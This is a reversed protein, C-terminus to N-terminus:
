FQFVITSDTIDHVSEKTTGGYTMSFTYTGSLLEKNIEGGSTHGFTRWSGAYYTVNGTDIGNGQSDKLQVKVNVTQFVVVADTETNQVKEKYTGEYTMSFTYSGSLLEKSIEGGSTHGFTRWSGAYYTVNGSDIGNGQSNKLQVKVNVTQFVVVPDTVTNQVKEKYTGEYTMGFTYSGPLLEKSIEGSSTDGITRWSGAYYTVNGSDIPNGQSNKLQVKVNVTQFVVVADTGTNQVKEKYTGEYSMAFTYSKNPLSKSVMGSADTIGFDKWGGDYYKVTGGSLANGNSDKLQVKVATAALTFSLTQPPEVNGAQDTSKYMLSIQGQKDFTVASSYLHWTTGNDLSYETRAVGSLNDTSQLTLTVPNVFTGNPGDPELPFVSATTVPATKDIENVTPTTVPPAWVELEVHNSYVNTSNGNLWLRVYRANTTAFPIDKGGSTEVYEADTGIGQGASNDTDNNFVTTKTAFTPDNSVQVVVDRYKWGSGFYHWLKIDNIDYSEGLDLQIWNVSSSYMDVFNANTKDGDTLRVKNQANSSSTIATKNLAVNTPLAPPVVPAGPKSTISVKGLQTVYANTADHMFVIKLYKTGVPLSENYSFKNWTGVAKLVGTRIPTVPTYTINDPSSFFQYDTFPGNNLYWTDAAFKDIDMDMFSKYIVYENLNKTRTLRSADGEMKAANSSDFRFNATHDFMNTFDYVDDTVTVTGAGAPPAALPDYQISLKHSIGDKAGTNVEFKITPSLQLITITPDKTVVSVGAKEIEYTLKNQKHTPDSIAFDLVGAQEKLMMSSPNYSIVGGVMGANWFNAGTIGLVKEKVAHVDTNNMLIEIDPNNGYSTTEQSTKNPLLVYSYDKNVPNSGHDYWLTLYKKTITGLGTNGLAQWTGKRTERLGKISAPQPFFYGGTGELYVSSVNTMDESWGLGSPKTVGNVVLQEDGNNKPLNHHVPNLVAGLTNPAYFQIESLRNTLDLNNGHFVIKMYRATTDPIDYAIIESSLVSNQGSYVTTWTTNNTSTQLDFSYHKTLGDFFSIGAYGVQVNSGLDYILSQGDGVSSYYTTIDSDTTETKNTTSLANLSAVTLPIIANGQANPAYIQAELIHNFQNATNGHGIIKVYRAQVDPFDYVKIDAASGGPISSGSYVNTWVSNDTSVQIDFSTARSTQSQFNIGVYGIPQLKGLDYQIWQDNGLASWKSDLNNDLTHQPVNGDNSNGTVAYVKLRLPEGAIPTSVPSALDISKSFTEKNLMRNEITTEIKRNDTSNIGSGIAVIEDDFMFWSKRAKLSSSAAKLDMGVAAYLNNLESGGTWPNPSVYNMNSNDARTMTDVTTGSLRYLNVTPWFDTYQNLDQNYLYTMGESTYWGKKNDNSISEYNAIRSSSMSVGFGFGPKLSVARDMGAFVKTLVKEDRPIINPDNIVSKALLMTALDIDKYFNSLSNQLMWYKVMAKMRLADVPPASQSLRLIAGMVKHAPVQDQYYNRAVERSRIMDMLAGKYIFPEYSDYVWQYVNNIGSYTPYWQTGGLLNLIKAVDQILAAGYGGNYAFRGHMVFSGDQYFGDGTTVYDMVKSLADRANSLMTDSKMIIGQVALYSAKWVRNTGTLETLDISMKTNDPSFHQIMNMYKTIRDPTALLDDYMLLVADSLQLPTGIELDYWLDWSSVPYVTENYRNVYMWELADLIDIKLTQNGYFSSGVSKYAIAMEKIRTYNQTLHLPKGINAPDYIDAWLYLRGPAKNLTGWSSQALLNVKYAVDPDSTNYGTGGTITAEYKTRLDDYVDNASANRLGVQGFVSFLLALILIIGLKKRIKKLM